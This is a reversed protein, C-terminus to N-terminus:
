RSRRVHQRIHVPRRRIYGTVKYHNQVTDTMIVRSPNDRRIRRWLDEAMLSRDVARDSYVAEYGLDFLDNIATDYLYRGIGMGHLEADIGSISVRAGKGSTYFQIRGVKSMRSTPKWSDDKSVYLEYEVIEQPVPHLFERIARARVVLLPKGKVVNLAVIDAEGRAQAWAPVVLKPDEQVNKFTIVEYLMPM